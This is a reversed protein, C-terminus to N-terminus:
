TRASTTKQDPKWDGLDFDHSVIRTGPKLQLLQPRLKLMVFPLLYTSIM